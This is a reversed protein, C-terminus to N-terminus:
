HRQDGEELLSPATVMADLGSASRRRQDLLMEPSRLCRTHIQDTDQLLRHGPREKERDGVGCFASVLAKAKSPQSPPSSEFGWYCPWFRGHQRNCWGRIPEPSTLPHRGM